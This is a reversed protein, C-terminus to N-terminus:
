GEDNQDTSESDDKSRQTPSLHSSAELLKKALHLQEHAGVLVLVDSAKLIFDPGPNTNPQRDRVVAIINAGVKSRINLEAVSKGCALSSEPLYFTQTATIQLVKLLDEMSEPTSTSRGRFLGYGGARVAAIQAALINRPIDFEELVHSFIKVSAEFDAPVVVNAGQDSLPELETVFYTRVAIYIDPRLRRAQSVIRRTDEPTNVAVVIARARMIGAHELITVRTADGVVVHSGMERAKHVLGQNMEIVSHSIQTANLVQVLNEGNIGFGVIIVHNNMEESNIDFDSLQHAEEEKKSFRVSIRTAMDNGIPFAIAGFLMTGVTYAVMMDIFGEPLLGVADAESALVYGFESVTCLGVGVQIAIRVPWGALKVAGLTIMGKLILTTLVAVLLIPWHALVNGLQVTMGLAIFFLANFVDRFPTIEAVLQHRVDANALLLGAICAGLAPPWGAKQALYAGGCAMMVAFLTLLEQGGHHMVQSIFSPLIKRTITAVVILGGFMLFITVMGNSSDGDSSGVFMPILMMVIIVFVDQLLLIGTILNGKTSQVEGSDSLQKLVIATSSLSVSIGILIAASLSMDGFQTLVLVTLSIMAVTIIGMAQLVRFGMRLLPAPSLELGITFLLLVLGVEAFQEVAHQDILEWSSPGIAMGTCLFGIITPAKALRFILAVLVATGFLVAVQGLFQTDHM